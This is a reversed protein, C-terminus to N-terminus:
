KRSYKGALMIINSQLKRPIRKLIASQWAVVPKPTTNGTERVFDVLNEPLDNQKGLWGKVPWDAIRLLEARAEAQDNPNRADFGYNSPKVYITPQEGTIKETEFKLMEGLRRASTAHAVATMSSTSAYHEGLIAVSNRANEGGNSAEEDLIIHPLRDAYDRQSADERLASELYHAESRYGLKLIDGSDKGIGGTIVATEVLGPIVLNGVAKAVLPDNRGFVVTSEAHEPLAPASLYDFIQDYQQDYNRTM